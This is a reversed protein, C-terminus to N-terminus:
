GKPSSEAIKMLFKLNDDAFVKGKSSDLINNPLKLFLCPSCRHSRYKCLFLSYDHICFIVSFDMCYMKMDIKILITYINLFFHYFSSFFFMMFLSYNFLDMCKKVFKLLM